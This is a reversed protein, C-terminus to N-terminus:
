GELLSVLYALLNDDNVSFFSVVIPLLKKHRKNLHYYWISVKWTWFQSSNCSSKQLCSLRWTLPIWFNWHLKNEASGFQVFEIRWYICLIQFYYWSFSFLIQWRCKAEFKISLFLVGFDSKGISWLYPRGNKVNEPKDFNRLNNQIIKKTSRSM